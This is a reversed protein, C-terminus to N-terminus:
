IIADRTLCRLSTCLKRSGPTEHWVCERKEKGSAVHRGNLWDLRPPSFMVIFSCGKTNLGTNAMSLHQDTISWLLTRGRSPRAMPVVIHIFYRCLDQLSETFSSIRAVILTGHQRHVKTQLHSLSFSALPSRM